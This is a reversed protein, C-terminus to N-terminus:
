LFRPALLCCAPLAGLGSRAAALRMYYSCAHGGGGPRERCIAAASRARGRARTLAAPQAYPPVPPAAM